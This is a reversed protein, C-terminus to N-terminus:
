FKIRVHEQVEEIIKQPPRGQQLVEYSSHHFMESDLDVPTQIYYTNECEEKCIELCSKLIPVIDAASSM